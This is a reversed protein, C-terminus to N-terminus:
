EIVCDGRQCRRPRGTWGAQRLVTTVQAAVHCPFEDVDGMGYRLMRNGDVAAANDRRMDRWREPDPHAARGDLEVRTNYDEYCVDDYQTGGNRLRFTQRSATPLGHAREVDNLYKLELLSQCGHGVDELAAQLLPRWRLRSRQEMAERLRATTTM